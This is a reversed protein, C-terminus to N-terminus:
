AYPEGNAAKDDFRGAILIFRSNPNFEAVRPPEGFVETWAERLGEIHQAIRDQPTALVMAAAPIAAASVVPVASLFKRRTLNM